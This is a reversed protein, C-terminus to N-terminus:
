EIFWLIFFLGTVAFVVWGGIDPYSYSDVGVIKIASLLHSVPCVPCRFLPLQIWTPDM